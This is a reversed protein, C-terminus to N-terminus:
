VMSKLTALELQDGADEARDADTGKDVTQGGDFVVNKLRLANRQCLEDIPSDIEYGLLHPGVDARDIQDVRVVM